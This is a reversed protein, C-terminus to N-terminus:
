TRNELRSNRQEIFAPTEELLVLFEYVLAAAEKVVPRLHHARAELEPDIAHFSGDLVYGANDHASMLQRLRKGIEILDGPEINSM